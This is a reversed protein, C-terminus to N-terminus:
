DLAGAPVDLKPPLKAWGEPPPPPVYYPIPVQKYGEYYSPNKTSFRVLFRTRGNVLDGPETGEYTSDGVQYTFHIISESNPGVVYSTRTVEGVTYHAYAAIEAREQNKQRFEYIFLPIIIVPVAIALLTKLREIQNTLPPM